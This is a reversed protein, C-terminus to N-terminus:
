RVCELASPTRMRMETVRMKYHPNYKAWSKLLNCIRGRTFILLDRLRDM